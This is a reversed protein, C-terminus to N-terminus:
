PVWVLTGNVTVSDVLADTQVVWNDVEIEIALVPTTADIASVVSGTKWQALTGGILSAPPGAPGSSLWAYCTNDIIAPGNGDDSFVQYWTGPLAGYPMPAELNYHSITNYAYEFVLADGPVIIDVHPPYGTILNECWSISLLQGLTMPVTPTIVIRAEDGSGATGTTQLQTTTGVTKIAIASNKVSLAVTFYNPGPIGQLGTAGTAGTYGRLGREGQIGQEGTAGVSGTDGTAGTAGRAGYEGQLGQEGQEGQEGQLGQGGQIGLEGQEGQIGQIGQDGMNGKVGKLGQEGTCGTVMVTILILALLITGILKKKM